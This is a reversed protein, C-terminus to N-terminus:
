AAAGKAAAKLRAGAGKAAALVVQVLGPEMDLDLAVAAAVASPKPARSPASKPCDECVRVMRDAAVARLKAAAKFAAPQTNYLKPRMTFVRGSRVWVHFHVDM